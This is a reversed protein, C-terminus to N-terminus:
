EDNGGLILKMHEAVAENGERTFHCGTYCFQKNEYANYYMIKMFMENYSVFPQWDVGKINRFDVFSSWVYANKIKTLQQVAKISQRINDGRALPALSVVLRHWFRKQELCQLLIEYNTAGGVGVATVDYDERLLDIWTHTAGWEGIKLTSDSYSDGAILIAPRTM